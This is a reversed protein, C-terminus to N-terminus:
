LLCSLYTYIIIYLIICIFILSPFSFSISLVPEMYFDYFEKRLRFKLDKHTHRKKDVLRALDRQRDRERETVYVNESM